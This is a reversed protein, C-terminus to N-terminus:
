PQFDSCIVREEPLYSPFRVPLIRYHLETSESSRTTPRQGIDWNCRTQTAARRSAARKTAQTYPYGTRYRSIKALIECM